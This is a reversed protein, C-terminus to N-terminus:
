TLRESTKAQGEGFLFFLTGIVATVGIFVLGYIMLPSMMTSNRSDYRKGYVDREAHHNMVRLTILVRKWGFGALRNLDLLLYLRARHREARPM